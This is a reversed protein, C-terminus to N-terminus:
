NITIEIQKTKGCWIQEKPDAKIIVWFTGSQQSSDDSIWNSLSNKEYYYTVVARPSIPKDKFVDNKLIISNFDQFKKSSDAVLNLGTLQEINNLDYQKLDIKIPSTSGQYNGDNVNATIVVYLDGPKQNQDSIDTKGQADSFYKITPKILKPELLTDVWIDKLVASDLEKNTKTADFLVNLWYLENIKTNLNMKQKPTPSQNNPTQANKPTVGSSNSTPKQQSVLKNPNNKSKIAKKKKTEKENEEEKTETESSAIIGATAGGILATAGVIGAIIAAKKKKKKDKEESM